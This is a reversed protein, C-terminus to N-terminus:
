RVWGGKCNRLDTEGDSFQIGKEEVAETKKDGEGGSPERELTKEDRKRFELRVGVHGNTL